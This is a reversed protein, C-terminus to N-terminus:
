EDGSESRRLISAAQALHRRVRSLDRELARAGEADGDRLQARVADFIADNVRDELAALDDALGDFSVV